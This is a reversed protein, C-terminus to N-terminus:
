GGGPPLAPRLLAEVQAPGPRRHFLLEYLEAVAAPLGEAPRAGFLAPLWALGLLRNVSPPFDVWGYPLSPALALRGTRV